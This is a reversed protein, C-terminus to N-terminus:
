ELQKVLCLKLRSTNGFFPYDFLIKGELRIQVLSRHIEAKQWSCDVARGVSSDFSDLPLHFLISVYIAVDGLNHVCLMEASNAGQIM